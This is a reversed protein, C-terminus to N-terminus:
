AVEAGGGPLDVQYIDQWLDANFASIGAIVDAEFFPGNGTRLHTAKYLISFSPRGFSSKCKLQRGELRAILERLHDNTDKSETRSEISWTSFPVVIERGTSKYKGYFVTRREGQRRLDDPVIELSNTIEHPDCEFHAFGFTARVKIISAAFTEELAM